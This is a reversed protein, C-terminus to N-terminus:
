GDTRADQDRPPPCHTWCSLGVAHDQHALLLPMQPMKYHHEKNNIQNILLFKTELTKVRIM